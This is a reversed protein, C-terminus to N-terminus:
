AKFRSKVNDYSSDLYCLWNLKSEIGKGDVGSLENAVNSIISGESTKDGSVEWWMGGGLGNKKIYKTKALALDKTDYTVLMGTSNDYSYTAYAEQDWYENAENLPLDKFDYMGAEWTGKGIGNYTQGLGVANTFARGYLPMGLNLKSSPVGTRLYNQIVSETDFPTSKPNSKSPALNSACGTTKDWSGAFDYGMLSVFDLEEAVERPPINKYNSEGTPAAVSLLFRPRADRPIGNKKALYDAYGDLTKRVERLLALFQGGQSKQKKPTLMAIAQSYPGM